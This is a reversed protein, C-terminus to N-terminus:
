VTSMTVDSMILGGLLIVQPLNFQCFNEWFRIFCWIDRCYMELTGTCIYIHLCSKARLTRMLFFGSSMKCRVRDPRSLPGTQISRNLFGRQGEPVLWFVCFPRFPSSVKMIWWSGLYCTYGEKFRRCVLAVVLMAVAWQLLHKTKHLM